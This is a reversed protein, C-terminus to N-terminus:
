FDINRGAPCAHFLGNRSAPVTSMYGILYVAVRVYVTEKNTLLRGTARLDLMLRYSISQQSLFTWPAKRVAVPDSPMVGILM